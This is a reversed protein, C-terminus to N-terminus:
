MNMFGKHNLQLLSIITSNDHLSEHYQILSTLARLFFWTTIGLHTFFHNITHTPDFCPFHWTTISLYILSKRYQTLLVLTPSIDYLLQYTFLHNAINYLRSWFVSFYWTTVSFDRVFPTICFFLLLRPSGTLLTNVPPNLVVSASILTIFLLQASLIRYVKHIFSWWLQNEGYSLEPYLRAADGDGMELDIDKGTARDVHSMNVSAYGYLKKMAWLQETFTRRHFFSLRTIKM